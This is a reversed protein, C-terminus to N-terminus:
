ITSSSSQRLRKKRKEITKLFSGKTKLFFCDNKLFLGSLPKSSKSFSKPNNKINNNNFVITKLFGDNKFFNDNIFINVIMLLPDDNNIMLSPYNNGITLM